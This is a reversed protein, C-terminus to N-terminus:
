NDSAAPVKGTGEAADTVVPIVMSVRTSNLLNKKLSDGSKSFDVHDEYFRFRLIEVFADDTRQEKFRIAADRSKQPKYDKGTPILKDGDNIVFIIKHPDDKGSEDVGGVITYKVLAEYTAVDFGTLMEGNDIKRKLERLGRTRTSIESKRLEFRDIKNKLNSIKGETIAMRNEYAEEGIRDSILLDIIKQKRAKEKELKEKLKDLEDSPAISEM